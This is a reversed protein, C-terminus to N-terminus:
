QVSLIADKAEGPKAECILARVDVGVRPLIILQGEAVQGDTQERQQTAVTHVREDVILM